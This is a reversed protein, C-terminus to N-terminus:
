DFEPLKIKLYKMKIESCIIKHIVRQVCVCGCVLHAFVQFKKQCLEVRGVEILTEKRQM